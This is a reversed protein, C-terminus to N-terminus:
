FAAAYRASSVFRVESRTGARDIRRMIEEDCAEQRTQRRREPGFADHYGLMPYEGHLYDQMIADLIEDSPELYEIVWVGKGKNEVLRYEGQFVDSQFDSRHIDGVKM